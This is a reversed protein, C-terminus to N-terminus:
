IRASHRLEVPQCSGGSPPSEIPSPADLRSARGDGAPWPGRLRPRPTFASAQGDSPYRRCPLNRRATAM